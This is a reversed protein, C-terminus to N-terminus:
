PRLGRENVGIAIDPGRALRQDTKIRVQLGRRRFPERREHALDGSSRANNEATIADGPEGSSRSGGSLLATSKWNAHRM